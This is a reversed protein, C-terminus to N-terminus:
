SPRCAVMVLRPGRASFPAGDYDSFVDRVVWGANVVHRTLSNITNRERKIGYHGAVHRAAVLNHQSSWSKGTLRIWVAGGAPVKECGASIGSHREHKVDIVLLGGPKVVRFAETLTSETSTGAYGVSSYISYVGDFAEAAFPLHENVAV